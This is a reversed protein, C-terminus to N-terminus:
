SAPVPDLGEKQFAYVSRHMHVASTVLIIQANDGFLKKYEKAEM